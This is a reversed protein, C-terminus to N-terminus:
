SKNKSERVFLNSVLLRLLLLLYQMAIIYHATCFEPRQSTERRGAPGSAHSCNLEICFSPIFFHKAFIINYRKM